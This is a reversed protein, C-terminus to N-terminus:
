QNAKYRHTRTEELLKIFREFTKVNNGLDLYTEWAEWYQRMIEEHDGFSAHEAQIKQRLRNM